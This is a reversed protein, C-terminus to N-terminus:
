TSMWRSPFATALSRAAAQQATSTRSIPTPRRRPQNPSPRRRLRRYAHWGDHAQPSRRLTTAPREHRGCLRGRRPPRGTPGQHPGVRGKLDDKVSEFQEENEPMKIVRGRVAGNTGAGWASSTFEMERLTRYEPKDSGPNRVAVVRATSPGRDFRVPIEGWKFLSVNTLGWKEFQAKSWNNAAEANSSGTLRPGIQTTLYTIHEMVQNRNKGEDVIRKLVEPDGMRLDPIPERKGDIVAYQGPGMIADPATSPAPASQPGSGRVPQAPQQALATAWGAAVLVAAATIRSFEPVRRFSDNM